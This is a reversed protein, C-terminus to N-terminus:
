GRWWNVYWNLVDRLPPFLDAFRVLPIYASYIAARPSLYGNQVLWDVPGASLPYLVLLLVMGVALYTPWRSRPKSAGHDPTPM